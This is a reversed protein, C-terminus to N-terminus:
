HISPSGRVANALKVYTLNREARWTGAPENNVAWDESLSDDQLRRRTLWVASSPFICPLSASWGRKGNWHLNDILM